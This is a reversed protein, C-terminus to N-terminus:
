HTRQYLTEMHFSIQSVTRETHSPVSKNFHRIAIFPAMTLAFDVFSIHGPLRREDQGSFHSIDLGQGAVSEGCSVKFSIEEVGLWSEDTVGLTHSELFLDHWIGLNWSVFFCFPGHFSFQVTSKSPPIVCVCSALLMKGTLLISLSLFRELCVDLKLLSISWFM